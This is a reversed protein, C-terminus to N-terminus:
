NSGRRDDAEESDSSVTPRRKSVQKKSMKKLKTTIEIKKERELKIIQKTLKQLKNGSSLRSDISSIMNKEACDKLFKNQNREDLGLFLTALNLIMEERHTLDHKPVEQRNGVGYANTYHARVKGIVTKDLKDELQIGFDQIKGILANTIRENVDTLKIEVGLRSSTGGYYYEKANKWKFYVVGEQSKMPDFFHHRKERFIANDFVTQLKVKADKQLEKQIIVSDETFAFYKWFINEQCNRLFDIFVEEQSAPSIACAEPDHDELTKLIRKLHRQLISQM